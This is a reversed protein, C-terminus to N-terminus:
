QGPAWERGAGLCVRKRMRVQYWGLRGPGWRLRPTAQPGTQRPPRPPPCRGQWRACLHCHSRIWRGRAAWRQLVVCGQASVWPSPLHAAPPGQNKVCNVIIHPLHSCCCSVIFDSFKLRLWNTCFPALYVCGAPPGPLETDAQRQRAFGRVPLFEHRREARVLEPKGRIMVFHYLGVVTGLKNLLLACVQAHLSLFFVHAWDVRWKVGSWARTGSPHTGAVSM